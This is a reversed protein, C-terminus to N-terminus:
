PTHVIKNSTKIWPVFFEFETITLLIALCKRMVKSDENQELSYDYFQPISTSKTQKNRLTITFHQASNLTPHTVCLMFHTTLIPFQTLIKNM